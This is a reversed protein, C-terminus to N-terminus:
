QLDLRYETTFTGEPVYFVSHNDRCKVNFALLYMWSYKFKYRYHEVYAQQGKDIELIYSTSASKEKIQKGKETDIVYRYVLEDEVYSSALYHRSSSASTDILATLEVTEVEAEVPFYFGLILGIVLYALIGLVIGIVIDEYDYMFILGLVIGVIIYVM